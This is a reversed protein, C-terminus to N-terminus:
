SQGTRANTSQAYRHKMVVGLDSPAQNRRIKIASLSMARNHESLTLKKIASNSMHLQASSVCHEGHEVFDSDVMREQLWIKVHKLGIMVLLRTAFSSM